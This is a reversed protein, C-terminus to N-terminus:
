VADCELHYYKELNKKVKGKNKSRRNEKQRRKKVMMMIKEEGVYPRM